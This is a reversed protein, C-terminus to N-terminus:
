QLSKVFTKLSQSKVLKTQVVRAGKSGLADKIKLKFVDLEHQFSRKRKDDTTQITIM